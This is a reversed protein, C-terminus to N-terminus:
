MGLLLEVYRRYEALQTSLLGQDGTIRALVLGGEYVVFLQDALSAADAAVVPRRVALAEEIKDRVLTRWTDAAEAIVARTAADAPLRDYVFSAFLCGTQDLPLLDAAEEYARLFHVFQEAPDSVADEAGALLQEILAIDDAAYRAVVACGLEDKSPFHHFFAGKSAGAAALVADVSTASFGEEMILRSAADLIRERVPSPRARRAVGTTTDTSM